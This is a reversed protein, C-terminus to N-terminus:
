LTPNFTDRRSPFRLVGRSTLNAPKGCRPLGHSAPRVSTAQRDTNTTFNVPRAPSHIGLLEEGSARFVRLSVSREPVCPQEVQCCSRSLPGLGVKCDSEQMEKVKGGGKETTHEM